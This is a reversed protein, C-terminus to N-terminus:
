LICLCFLSRYLLRPFRCTTGAEATRGTAFVSATKGLANESVVQLQYQTFPELGSVTYSTQPPPLITSLGLPDFQGSPNFVLRPRSETERKLWLEYFIIVGVVVCGYRSQTSIAPSLQASEVGM